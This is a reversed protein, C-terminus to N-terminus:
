GRAQLAIKNELYLYSLINLKKTASSVKDLHDEGGHTSVAKSHKLKIYLCTSSYVTKKLVQAQRILAANQQIKVHYHNLIAFNGTLDRAKCM